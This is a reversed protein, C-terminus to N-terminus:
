TTDACPSIKNQCLPPSLQSLPSLVQGFMLNYLCIWAFLLVIFSLAGCYRMTVNLNLDADTCTSYLEDKFKGLLVTSNSLLSMNKLSHTASHQISHVTCQFNSSSNKDFANQQGRVNFMSMADSQSQVMNDM